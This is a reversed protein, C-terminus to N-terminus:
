DGVEVRVRVRVRVSARVKLGSAFQFEHSIINV